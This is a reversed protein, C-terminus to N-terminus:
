GRRSALFRTVAAACERPREANVFHGAGAIAEVASRPFHRQIAALDRDEQLYRSRSGKLFLCPGSYQLQGHDAWASISGAELADRLTDLPLRSVLGKGTASTGRQLMTLLFGSVMPDREISQLKERAQTLTQVGPDACISELMGIYEIFKTNIPQAVPANEIVVMKSALSPQKLVTEMAAKGGMSHGLLVPQILGHDTVFKIVDLSMDEYTMSSCRPSTGHNRMNVLYIDRYMSPQRENELALINNAMSRNNNANGFLGHLIVMPSQASQIKGHCKNTIKNFTLKLAGSSLMRKM